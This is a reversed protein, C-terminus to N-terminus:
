SARIPMQVALFRDGTFLAPSLEDELVLEVPRCALIDTLYDLSLTINVENVATEETRTPLGVERVETKKVAAWSEIRSDPLEAVVKECGSVQSRYELTGTGNKRLTLHIPSWRNEGQMKIAHSIFPMVREISKFWGISDILLVADRKKPIVSRYDPFRGEALKTCVQVEGGGLTIIGFVGSEPYKKDSESVPLEGEKKPEKPEEPAVFTEMRVSGGHYLRMILKVASRPVVATVWDPKGMEIAATLRKQHLRRGDTTVMFLKNVNRSTEFMVGNLIYRTEDTSQAPAVDILGSHFDEADVVFSSVKEMGSQYGGSKPFPFDAFELEKDRVYQDGIMLYVGDPEGGRVPWIVSTEMDTMYAM